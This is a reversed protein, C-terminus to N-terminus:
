GNTIGNFGPRWADILHGQARSSRGSTDHFHLERVVAAQFEPLVQLPEPLAVEDPVPADGVLGPRSTVDRKIATARSSRRRSRRAAREAAPSCRPDVPGSIVCM